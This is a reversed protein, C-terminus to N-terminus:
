YMAQPSNRPSCQLFGFGLFGPGPCRGGLHRGGGIGSSKIVMDTGQPNKRPGIVIPDEKISGM